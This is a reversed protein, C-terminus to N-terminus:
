SICFSTSSGIDNVVVGFFLDTFPSFYLGSDFGIAHQELDIESLNRYNFYKVNLGFTFFRTRKAWTFASRFGGEKLTLESEGEENEVSILNSSLDTGFFESTFAFDGLKSETLSDNVYVPFNDPM